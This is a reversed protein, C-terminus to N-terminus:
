DGGGLRLTCITHKHLWHYKGAATNEIYTALIGDEDLLGGCLWLDAMGVAGLAPAPVPTGARPVLHCLVAVVSRQVPPGNLRSVSGM